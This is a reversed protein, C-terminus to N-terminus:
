GDDNGGLKNGDIRHGDGDDDDGDDGDDGDDDHELDDDCLDGFSGLIGRPRSLRRSEAGPGVPDSEGAGVHSTGVDGGPRVPVM